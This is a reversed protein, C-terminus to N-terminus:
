YRVAYLALTYTDRQQLPQQHNICSHPFAQETAEFNSRCEAVRTSRNRCDETSFQEEIVVLQQYDGTLRDSQERESYLGSQAGSRVDMLLQEGEAARRDVVFCCNGGQTPPFSAMDVVSPYAGCM